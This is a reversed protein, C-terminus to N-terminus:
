AMGWINLLDSPLVRRNDEEIRDTIRLPGRGDWSVEVQPTKSDRVVDVIRRVVSHFRGLLISNNKEWKDVDKKVDTIQPHDFVGSEQYALLFKGTQNLWLRPLIDEMDFLNYKWRTKIDFIQSQPVKIGKRKICLQENSVSAQNGLLTGFAEEISTESNTSASSPQGTRMYGDSESRVLFNIGAFDYGIIRQHSCSNRVDSDWTTYREPFTHGCGKLDTILETPSNERRIFFVTDGVLDVDFRFPKSNSGSFKMLNGLTSGCGVIDPVLITASKADDVWNYSSVYEVHGIKPSGEEILLAKIDISDVEPGFPKTSPQLSTTHFSSGGRKLSPGSRGGRWDGRFARSM